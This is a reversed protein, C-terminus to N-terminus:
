PSGPNVFRRLHLLPWTHKLQQQGIAAGGTSSSVAGRSRRYLASVRKTRV